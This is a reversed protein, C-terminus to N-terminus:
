QVGAWTMSDISLDILGESLVDDLRAVMSYPLIISIYFDLDTVGYTAM